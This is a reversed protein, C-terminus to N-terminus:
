RPPLVLADSGTKHIYAFWRDPDLIPEILITRNVKDRQFEGNCPRPTLDRRVAKELDRRGRPPAFEMLADEMNHILREIYADADIAPPMHIVGHLHVRKPCEPAREPVLFYVPRTEPRRACRRGLFERDTKHTAFKMVDHLRGLPVIRSPSFTLAHTPLPRM